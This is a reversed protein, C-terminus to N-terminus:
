TSIQVIGIVFCECGFQHTKRHRLTLDITGREPEVIEIDGIRISLLEDSRLLCYFAITYASQVLRRARPGLQFGQGRPVDGYADLDWNQPRHNVENLQRLVNSTVARSSM